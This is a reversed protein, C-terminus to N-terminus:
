QQVGLLFLLLARKQDGEDPRQLPFLRSQRQGSPERGVADVPIGIRNTTGVRANSSSSRVGKDAAVARPLAAESAPEKAATKGMDLASDGSVTPTETAHPGAAPIPESNCGATGILGISIVLLLRVIVVM